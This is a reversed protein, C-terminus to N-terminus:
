IRRACADFPSRGAATVVVLLGLVVEVIVSPAVEVEVEVIVTAVLPGGTALHAEEGTTRGVVTASRAAVAVRSVVEVLVSAIMKADSSGAVLVEISKAPM